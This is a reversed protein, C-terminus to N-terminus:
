SASKNVDSLKARLARWTDDLMYERAPPLTRYWKVLVWQPEETPVIRHVSRPDPLEGGANPDVLVMDGVGPKLNTELKPFALAGGDAHGSLRIYGVRMTQGFTAMIDKAGVSDPDVFPRHMGLGERANLRLITTDTGFVSNLGVSLDLMLGVYVCVLDAVSPINSSIQGAGRDGPNIFGLPQFVDGPPGFHKMSATILYDCIEPSLVAEKM